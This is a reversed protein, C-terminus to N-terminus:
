RPFINPHMEMLKKLSDEDGSIRLAEAFLQQDPMQGHHNTGGPIDFDRLALYQEVRPDLGGEPNNLEIGSRNAIETVQLIREKEKQSRKAFPPIKKSSNLVNQHEKENIIGGMERYREYTNAEKKEEELYNEM